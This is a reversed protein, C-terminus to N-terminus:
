KAPLIQTSCEGFGVRIGDKEAWGKMIVTDNDEIFRRSTGDPMMIPKTGKWALELMSGFSGKDPGSITGSACLDGAEVNCGNVTHHALMQPFNWYLHKLNSSTILASHQTSLASNLTRHESNNSNINSQRSVVSSQPSELFVELKIDFHKCGEYKLYPLVEPMQEPGPIRFPDLAELTVIWSSIVSGFNKSLFPGLPVYEWKQIDRASLDNFLVLGFIYDEADSTNISTGLDTNKGIVFGMELEFDLQKTPGFSPNEQDDTKTQGKPRYIPTGSIVISSARGHYGVPIHKWNPLLANKPDRFMVGVNYAHQESAYFDTYNGIRVPIHMKVEDAKFFALDCAENNDQLDKNSDSFLLVLRNRVQNTLSKGLAIYENLYPQYFVSLDDIDLDDFYGFDALVSLDVVTNGIRTAPRPSNNGNSFIGFPINYISFDSDQEARIWSKMEVKM